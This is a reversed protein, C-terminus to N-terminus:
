HEPLARGERAHQAAIDRLVAFRLAPPRKAALTTKQAGELKDREHWRPGQPPSGQNQCRLGMRKSVEPASSARRTSKRVLPGRVGARTPESVRAGFRCMHGIAANAQPEDLLKRM